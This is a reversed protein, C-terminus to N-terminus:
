RHGLVREAVALDHAYTIKFNEQEGPIWRVRVSSFQEMCSATDTGAFHAREAEEYAALLPGARFGQPTQVRVLEGAPRGTLRSGDATAAHIDVGSLGPVAGGHERAVELVATVLRPTVLPRAGDHLLVVDISGDAIRGALHRLANLESEQRTAGGHVVEIRAGPHDARVREVLEGDQPRTVLLLVGISPVSAFADLSWSVLPRGALPLFVKNLSAGVRTGAGSALVVGAALPATETEPVAAIKRGTPTATARERYREM